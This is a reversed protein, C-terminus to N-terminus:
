NGEVMGLELNILRQWREVDTYLKLGKEEPVHEEPKLAGLDGAWEDMDRLIALIDDEKFTKLLITKIEILVSSIEGAEWNLGAYNKLIEFNRGLKMLKLAHKKDESKIRKILGIEDRLNTIIKALFGTLQKDDNCWVRIELINEETSVIIRVIIPEDDIKSVASFWAELSQEDKVDYICAMDFKSIARFAANFLLEYDLDQISFMKMDSALTAIRQKVYQISSKSASIIPSKVHVEQPTILKAHRKGYIDKFLVTASIEVHGCKRPELFFDIGRSEGPNLSPISVSIDDDEVKFFDPVDLYVKIDNIVLKSNNKMTVKFHVRGGEFDYGRKLELSQVLEKVMGDVSDPRERKIVESLDTLQETKADSPGHGGGPLESIFENSVTDIHGDIEGTVILDKVADMVQDDSCNCAIALESISIVSYNNIVPALSSKVLQKVEATSLARMGSQVKSDNDYDPSYYSSSGLPVGCMPCSPWDKQCAYNCNSCFVIDPDSKWQPPTRGTSTVKLDEEKWEPAQSPLREGCTICFVNNKENYNKCKPCQIKNSQPLPKGCAICFRANELNSKGCNPCNLSM